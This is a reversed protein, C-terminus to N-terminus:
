LKAIYIFHLSCFTKSEGETDLFKQGGAHIYLIMTVPLSVAGTESSSRLDSCWGMCKHITSHSSRAVSRSHCMAISESM